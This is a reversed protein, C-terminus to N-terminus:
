VGIQCSMSALQISRAFHLQAHICLVLKQAHTQMHTHTHTHTVRVQKQTYDQEWQTSFVVNAQEVYEGNSPQAAMRSRAAAETLGDREVIRSVVQFLHSPMIIATISYENRTYAHLVVKRM